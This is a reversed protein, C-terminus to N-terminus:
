CLSGAEQTGPPQSDLTHEQDGGRDDLSAPQEGLTVSCLRSQLPGRGGGWGWVDWRLLPLSCTLHRTESPDSWSTVRHRGYGVAGVGKALVLAGGQSWSESGSVGGGRDPGRGSPGAGVAGSAVQGPSLAPFPVRWLRARSSGPDGGTEAEGTGAM